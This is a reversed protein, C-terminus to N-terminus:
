WRVPSASPKRGPEDAFLGVLGRMYAAPFVGEHQEGPLVDLYIALGKGRRRRLADALVHVDAVLGFGTEAAGAALYARTPVPYDEEDRALAERMVWRDARDLLWDDWWIAPSVILHRTFLGPRTLLAHVAALGSTSKGVVVRDAADVEYRGEIFPIIETAVVDLFADAGGSGQWDAPSHELFHGGPPAFATPTYDRTRNEERWAVGPEDQYGIGVLVLPPVYALAEYNLAMMTAPTFLRVGDLFYVAVTTEGAAPERLPARVFLRYDVGNASTPLDFVEVPLPYEFPRPELAGAPSPDVTVGAAAAAATAATVVSAALLVLAQVARPAGSVAVRCRAFSGPV